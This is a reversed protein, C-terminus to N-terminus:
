LRKPRYLSFQRGQAIPELRSLLSARQAPSWASELRSAEIVVRVGDDTLLAACAPEDCDPMAVFRISPRWNLNLGNFYYLAEPQSYDGVFVLCRYNMRDLHPRMVAWGLTRTGREIDFVGRMERISLGTTAALIIALAAASFARPRRRLRWAALIVAAAVALLVVALQALADGYLWLTEFDTVAKELARGLSRMRSLIALAAVIGCTVALLRVRRRDHLREGLFLAALLALPPWLGITYTDRKTGSASFVVFQLGFWLLPLLLRQDRWHWPRGAEDPARDWGGGAEEQNRWFSRVIVAAAWPLAVVLLALLPMPIQEWLYVLYFYWPGADNNITAGTRSLLHYGIYWRWFEPGKPSLTMALHWPAAVLLAVGNLLLQEVLIHRLAHRGRMWAYGSLGGVVVAALVAFAIRNMLGLGMMAGAFVLWLRARPEIALRRWGTVRVRDLWAAYGLLSAAIYFSCPVDFQNRRSYVTFYWVSAILLAALLGTWRDRNLRRGLLFLVVVVGAGTLAPYIRAVFESFGFLRFLVATIWIQLPPFAASWYGHWALDSQDLWAGRFLVIKSRWAYLCEDFDKLDGAGLNIFRHGAFVAVALWIAAGIGFARRMSPAELPV